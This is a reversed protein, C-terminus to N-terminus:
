MILSYSIGGLFYGGTSEGHRQKLKVGAVRGALPTHFLKGFHSSLSVAFFQLPLTSGATETQRFIYFAQKKHALFEMKQNLKERSENCEDSVLFTYAAKKCMERGGECSRPSESQAPIDPQTTTTHTKHKKQYAEGRGNM